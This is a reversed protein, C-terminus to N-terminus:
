GEREADARRLRREQVRTETYAARCIDLQAPLMVQRPQASAYRCRADYVQIALVYSEERPLTSLARRCGQLSVKARKRLTISDLPQRSAPRANAVQPAARGCTPPCLRPLNNDCALRPARALDACVTSRSTWPPPESLVVYTDLLSWVCMSSVSSYPNYQSNYARLTAYQSSYWTSCAVGGCLCYVTSVDCMGCDVCWLRVRLM